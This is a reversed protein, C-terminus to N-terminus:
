AAVAKFESMPAYRLNHRYRVNNIAQTASHAHTTYECNRYYVTYLTKM